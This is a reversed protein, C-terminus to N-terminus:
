WTGEGDGVVVGDVLLLRKGEDIGVEIPGVHLLIGDADLVIERAGHELGAIDAIVAHAFVAGEIEVLHLDRLVTEQGIEQAGLVVAEQGQCAVPVKLGLKLGTMAPLWGSVTKGCSALPTSLLESYTFRMWVPSGPSNAVCSWILPSLPLTFKKGLGLARDASM